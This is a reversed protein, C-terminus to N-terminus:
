AAPNLPELPYERLKRYISTKAGAESSFLSFHSIRSRGLEAPQLEQVKARLSALPVPKKIRALTLHPSFTRNEKAIGLPLLQDETDSALEALKAGGEVGLWLVHPVRQRPFWGLNRLELEFPERVATAVLARQLDELRTEPWEGIFKTTIHLNHLPRWNISATPRLVSLLRDLRALIEPPLDIATFLRM